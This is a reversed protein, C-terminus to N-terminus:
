APGEPQGQGVTAGPVVATEIAIELPGVDRTRRGAFLVEIEHHGGVFGRVLLDNRDNRQMQPVLDVSIQCISGSFLAADEYDPSVPPETRRQQLM